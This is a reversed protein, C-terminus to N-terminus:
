LSFVLTVEGGDETKSLLELSGKGMKWEYANQMYTFFDQERLKEPQRIAAMLTSRMPMISISQKNSTYPASYQNPAGTGSINEADFNMTFIDGADEDSLTKRDFLIGNGDIRVEILKWEKGAVDSFKPASGCSIMMAIGFALVLVLPIQLFFREKM